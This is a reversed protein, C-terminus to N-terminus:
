AHYVEVGIIRSREKADTVGAEKLAQNMLRAEENITDLYGETDFGGTGERIKSIGIHEGTAEKIYKQIGRARKESVLFKQGTAIAQPINGISGRLGKEIAAARENYEAVYWDEYEAKTLTEPILMRAGTRQAKEVNAQHYAKYREYSGDPVRVNIKM